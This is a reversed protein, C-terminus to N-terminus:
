HMCECVRLRTAAVKTHTIVTICAAITVCTLPSTARSSSLLPMGRHDVHGIPGLGIRCSCAGSAGGRGRWPQPPLPRRECACASTTRCPLQRQMANGCLGHYLRPPPRHCGHCLPPHHCGHCPPMSTTGDRKKEPLNARLHCCRRLIAAVARLHRNPRRRAVRLRRIVCWARRRSGQGMSGSQVRLPSCHHAQDRNTTRRM